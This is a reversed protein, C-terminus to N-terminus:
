HAAMKDPVKFPENCNQCLVKKGALNAAVVNKDRCKPCVFRILEEKPEDDPQSRTARKGLSVMQESDRLLQEMHRNLQQIGNDISNVRIIFWLLFILNIAFVVFVVIWAGLSM